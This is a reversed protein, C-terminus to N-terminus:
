ACHCEAYLNFIMVSLMVANNNCLTDSIGLTVFLGKTGLTTISITMVHRRHELYLKFVARNIM